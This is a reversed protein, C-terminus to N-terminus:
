KSLKRSSLIITEAVVPELITTEAAVLELIITEAAVLELITTEAAVLELVSSAHRSDKVLHFSASKKGKLCKKKLLVEM